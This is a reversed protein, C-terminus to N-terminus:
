LIAGRLDIVHEDEDPYLADEATARGMSRIADGAREMVCEGVFWPTHLREAEARGADIARQLDEDQFRIAGEVIATLLDDTARKTAREQEAPTLQDFRRM